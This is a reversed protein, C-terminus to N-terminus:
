GSCACFVHVGYEASRIWGFCLTPRAMLIWVYSDKPCLLTQVEGNAFVKNSHGSMYVSKNHLCIVLWLRPPNVIKFICRVVLVCWASIVVVACDGEVLSPTREFRIVRPSLYLSALEASGSAMKISTSGLLVLLPSYCQNLGALIPSSISIGRMRLFTKCLSCMQLHVVCLILWAIVLLLFSVKPM